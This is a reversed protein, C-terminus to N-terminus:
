IGMEGFTERNETARAVAERDLDALEPHIVCLNPKVCDDTM